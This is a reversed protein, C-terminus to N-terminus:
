RQVFTYNGFTVSWIGADLDLHIQKQLNRLQRKQKRGYDRNQNNRLANQVLKQNAIVCEPTSPGMAIFKSIDQNAQKLKGEFAHCLGRFYYGAKDNRRIYPEALYIARNHEGTKLLRVIMHALAEHPVYGQEYRIYGELDNFLTQPSINIQDLFRNLHHKSEPPIRVVEELYDPSVTGTSPIVAVGAQREWRHQPIPSTLNQLLHIEMDGYNKGQDLAWIRGTQSQRPPTRENICAFALAVWIETSFDILNTVGGMHQIAASAEIKGPPQGEFYQRARVLNRESIIKLADPSDTNWYRALTSRVSPYLESEGRFIFRGKETESVIKLQCLIQRTGPDIDPTKCYLEVYWPAVFKYLYVPRGTHQLTFKIDQTRDADNSEFDFEVHIGLGHLDQAMRKAADWPAFIEGAQSYSIQGERLPPVTEAKYFLASPNQVKCIPQLSNPLQQDIFQQIEDLM